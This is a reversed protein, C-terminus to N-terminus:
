PVRGGGRGLRPTVRNGCDLESACDRPPNALEAALRLLSLGVLLLVLESRECQRVVSFSAESAVYLSSHLPFTNVENM